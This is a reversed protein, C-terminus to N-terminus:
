VTESDDQKQSRHRRLLWTALIRLAGAMEEQQQLTPAVVEYELEPVFAGKTQGRATPRSAGSRDTVRKDSMTQGPPALALPVKVSDLLNSKIEAASAARM